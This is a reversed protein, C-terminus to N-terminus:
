LWIERKWVRGLSASSDKGGSINKKSQRKKKIISGFPVSM